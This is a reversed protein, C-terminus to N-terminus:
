VLRAMIAKSLKMVKDMGGDQRCLTIIIIIVMGANWKM